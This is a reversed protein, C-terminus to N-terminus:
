EKTVLIIPPFGSQPYREIGMKYYTNVINPEEKIEVKLVGHNILELLYPASFDPDYKMVLEKFKDVSFSKTAYITCYAERGRDEVVFLSKIGENLLGVYILGSLSCTPLRLFWMGNGKLKGIVPLTVEIKSIPLRGLVRIAPLGLPTNSHVVEIYDGIRYNPIMYDGLKSVIYEGRTGDKADFISIIQGEDTKILGVHTPIYVLCDTVGLVPFESGMLGIETCGYIDSPVLKINFEECYERIAELVDPTRMTGATAIYSGDLFINEKLSSLLITLFPTITFTMDYSSKKVIDRLSANLNKTSVKVAKDTFFRGFGECAIESFQNEAYIALFNKIFGEGKTTWLILWGLWILQQLVDEKTLPVKKRMTLGTSYITIASPFGSPPEVWENFSMNLLDNINKDKIEPFRKLTWKTKSAEFKDSVYEIWMSRTWNKTEEFFEIAKNRIIRRAIRALFPLRMIFSAM